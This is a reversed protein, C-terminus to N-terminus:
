TIAVRAKYNRTRLALPTCLLIAGGEGLADVTDLGIRRVENNLEFDCFGDGIEESACDDATTARM